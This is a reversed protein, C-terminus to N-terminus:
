TNGAARDAKEKQRMAQRNLRDTRVETREAATAAKDAAVKPAVGSAAVAATQASAAGAVAILAATILTIKMPFGKKTVPQPSPGVRGVTGLQGGKGRQLSALPHSKRCAQALRAAAVDNIFQKACLCHEKIM